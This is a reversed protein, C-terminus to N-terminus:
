WRIHAQSVALVMGIGAIAAFLLIIGLMLLDARSELKELREHVRQQHPPHEAFLHDGPADPAEIAPPGQPASSSANDSM